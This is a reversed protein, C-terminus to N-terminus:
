GIKFYARLAHHTIPSVAYRGQNEKAENWDDWGLLFAEKDGTVTRTRITTRSQFHALNEIGADLLEQATVVPKDAFLRLGAKTKDSAKIMWERMQRPTIDAVGEMDIDKYDPGLTDPITRAAAEEGFWAATLEEQAQPSLSSFQKKDIVMFM